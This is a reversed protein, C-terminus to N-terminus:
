KKSENDLSIYTSQSKLKKLKQKTKKKRNSYHKVAFSCYFRTKVQKKSRLKERMKYSKKKQPGM